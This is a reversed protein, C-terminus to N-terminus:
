GVLHGHTEPLDNPQRPQYSTNVYLSEDPRYSPEGRVWLSRKGWLPRDFLRPSSRADDPPHFSGKDEATEATVTPNVTIANVGLKTLGVLIAKSGKNLVYDALVIIGFLRDKTLM